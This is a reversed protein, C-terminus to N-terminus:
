GLGGGGGFRARSGGIYNVKLQLGPRPVHVHPWKFPWYHTHGGADIAITLYHTHGGADNFLTHSGRIAILAPYLKVAIADNVKTTM